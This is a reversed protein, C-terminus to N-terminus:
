ALNKPQAFTPFNISSIMLLDCLSIHQLLVAYKKIYLLAM